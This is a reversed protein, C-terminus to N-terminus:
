QGAKNEEVHQMLQPYTAAAYINKSYIIYAVWSYLNTHFKLVNQM